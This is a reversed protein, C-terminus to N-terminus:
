RLQYCIVLCLLLFGEGMALHPKLKLVRVCGDNWGSVNRKMEKEIFLMLTYFSNAIVEYNM